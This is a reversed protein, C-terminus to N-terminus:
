GGRHLLVSRTRSLPLYAALRLWLSGIETSWTVLVFHNGSKVLENRLSPVSTPVADKKWM